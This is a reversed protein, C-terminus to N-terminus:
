KVFMNIACCETLNILVCVWSNYRFGEFTTNDIRRMLAFAGLQRRLLFGFNDTPDFLLRRSVLVYAPHIYQMINPLFTICCSGLSAYVVEGQPVLVRQTPISEARLFQGTKLYRAHKQFSSAVINFLTHMPL